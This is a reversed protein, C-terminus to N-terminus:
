EILRAESQPTAADQNNYSIAKGGSVSGGQVTASYCFLQGEINGGGNAEWDCYGNPWYITGALWSGGITGGGPGKDIFSGTTGCASSTGDPCASTDSGAPPGGYVLMGFDPCSPGGGSAPRCWESTNPALGLSSTAQPTGPASFYTFACTAQECGATGSSVELPYVSNTGWDSSLSSAGLGCPSSSGCAATTSKAALLGAANAFELTVDAGYLWDGQSITLGSSPGFYYLGPAFLSTNNSIGLPSWYCGPSYVTVTVAVGGLTGPASSPLPNGTGSGSCQPPAAASPNQFSANPDSFSTQIDGPAPVVFGPQSCPNPDGSPAVGGSSYYANTSGCSITDHGEVEYGDSYVGPWGATVGNDAYVQINGYPPPVGGTVQQAYLCIKQSSPNQIGQGSYVDGQIYTATDGRCTISQNTYLAYTNPSVPGMHLAAAHAQPSASAAGLAGGLILPQIQTFDAAAVDPNGGYPYSITASIGSSSGGLSFSGVYGSSCNGSLNNLTASGLPVSAVAIWENMYTTMTSSDVSAGSACPVDQATRLAVADATGQLNRRDFWLVGSMLILGMLLILAISMIAVVVVTQGEQRSALRGGFGLMRRRGSTAQYSRPHNEQSM